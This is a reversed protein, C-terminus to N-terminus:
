SIQSKKVVQGGGNVNEIIYFNVFLRNKQGGVGRKKYVYNTFPGKDLNNSFVFCIIISFSYHQEKNQILCTHKRLKKKVKKWETQMNKHLTVYVFILVKQVVQRCRTQTSMSHAWICFDEGHNSLSIKLKPETHTSLSFQVGCLSVKNSHM